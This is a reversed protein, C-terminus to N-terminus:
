NNLCCKKYKKGSGCPCPENRGIKKDKKIPQQKLTQDAKSDIILEGEFHDMEHQVAIATLGDNQISPDEDYYFCISEEEFHDEDIRQHKITFQKYRETNRFENPFSLCGEGYFIFPDEKDVVVPNILYVFEKGGSSNKNCRIIGVKKPIGIQIAALGVGHSIPRLEKELKEIIDKAEEVSTVDESKQRLIDIDKVVKDAM